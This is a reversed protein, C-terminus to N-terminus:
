HGADFAYALFRSAYHAPHDTSFDRNNARDMSSKCYFFGLIRRFTELPRRGRRFHFIVQAVGSHKLFATVFDQDLDDLVDLQTAFVRLIQM